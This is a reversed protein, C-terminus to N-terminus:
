TTSIKGMDPDEQTNRGCKALKRKEEQEENMSKDNVSVKFKKDLDNGDRIDHNHFIALLM